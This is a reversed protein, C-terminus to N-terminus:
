VLREGLDGQPLMLVDQQPRNEALESAIAEVEDFDDSLESRLYKVNRLTFIDRGDGPVHEVIDAEVLVTLLQELFKFTMLLVVSPRLLPTELTDVSMNLYPPDTRGFSQALCDLTQEMNAIDNPSFELSIVGCERTISNLLELVAIAREMQLRDGLLPEPGVDGAWDDAQAGIQRVKLALRNTSVAEIFRYFQLWSQATARTSRLDKAKTRFSVKANENPGRALYLSFYQFDFKVKAFRDAVIAPLRYEDGEFRFRQRNASDLFTVRSRAHPEPDFEFSGSVPEFKDLPLSVKFREEFASILEGSIPRDGLFADAVEEPTGYLKANLSLRAEEYGTEKLFKQKATAYERLDCGIHDSLYSVLAKPEAAIPDTWRAIGFRKSRNRADEGKAVFQRISKLIETAIPGVTPAGHVELLALDQSFVLVIFFSPEVAKVLDNAAGMRVAFRDSGAFVSKVQILAARRPPSSDTIPANKTTRWEVRFDWGCRDVDTKTPILKARSCLSRFADEGAVGLSDSEHGSM